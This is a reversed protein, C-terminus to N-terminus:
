AERVLVNKLGSILSGLRGGKRGAALAPLYISALERMADGGYRWTFPSLYTEHDFSITETM